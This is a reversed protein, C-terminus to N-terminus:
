AIVLGHKKRLAEATPRPFLDEIEVNLFRAIIPVQHFEPDKKNAVFKNWTQVKVEMQNLIEESPVIEEVGKERLIEAIRNM